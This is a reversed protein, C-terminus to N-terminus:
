EPLLTKPRFRFRDPVSAMGAPIAMPAIAGAGASVTAAASTLRKPGLLTGM